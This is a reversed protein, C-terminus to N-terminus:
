NRYYLRQRNDISSNVVFLLSLTNRAIFVDKAKLSKEILM